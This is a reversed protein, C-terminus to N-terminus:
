SKTQAVLKNLTNNMATCEKVQQRLLVNEKMLSQAQSYLIEEEKISNMM